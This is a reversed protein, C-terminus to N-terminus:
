GQYTTRNRAGAVLSMSSGFSDGDEADPRVGQGLGKTQLERLLEGNAVIHRMIRELNMTLGVDHRFRYKLSEVEVLAVQDIDIASLLIDQVEDRGSELGSTVMNYMDAV